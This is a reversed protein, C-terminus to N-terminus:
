SRWVQRMGEGWIGQAGVLGMIEESNMFVELSNGLQGWPEGSRFLKWIIRKAVGRFDGRGWQKVGRRLPVEQTASMVRFILKRKGIYACGRDGQM